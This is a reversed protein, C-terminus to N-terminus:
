LKLVKHEAVPARACARVCVGVSVCVSKDWASPPPPLFGGGEGRIFLLRHTVSQFRNRHCYSHSEGRRNMPRVRVAVKVNSVNLNNDDMTVGSPHYIFLRKRACGQTSIWVNNTIILIGIVGSCMAKNKYSQKMFYLDRSTTLWENPTPFINGVVLYM